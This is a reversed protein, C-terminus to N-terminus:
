QKSFMRLLHAKGVFTDFKTSFFARNQTKKPPSRLNCLWGPLWTLRVGDLWRGWTEAASNAFDVLPVIGVEGEAETQVAM